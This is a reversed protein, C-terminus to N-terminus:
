DALYDMFNGFVEIFLAKYQASEEESALNKVDVALTTKHDGASTINVSIKAGDATTVRWYDWKETSTVRPAEAYVLPVNSAEPAAWREWNYIVDSPLAILTRSVSAGFTGDGRQGPKRRGIHQEFLITVSQAWWEMNSTGLAADTEALEELKALALKALEAHPKDAHPTFFAIWDERSYGTARVAPDWAAAPIHGETTLAHLM